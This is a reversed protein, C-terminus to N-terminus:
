ECLQRLTRELIPRPLAINMRMFGEGDAGFLAGDNLALGRDVFYQQLEQQSLHMDRCNLYILYSAEVPMPRMEPKHEALYEEVFRINGAIYDKVQRLWEEGDNYAAITVLQSFLNGANLESAELYEFFRHRLEKNHVIAYSTVIGPTNFAKSPSGFTISNERAEASVTAFPTHRHPALTLDAHIEDSIVITGSEYCLAAIRRLEEPTWVRGGPNHPNSLVMIKVGELDAKLRHFDIEYRNDDTLILPTRVVQRGNKESVLFFPHYVPSLVLVKDGPQTLAQIAFAIGRVIGPIFTLEEPLVTYGHRQQQWRIISERWLPHETAYGLVEHDLRQRLTDIIFDPTRFDMDAVWMPILDDRGWLSQMADHKVCATNRRSIIEDFNYQM